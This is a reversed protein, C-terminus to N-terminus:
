LATLGVDAFRPRKEDLVSEGRRCRRGCNPCRNSRPWLGADASEGFARQYLELTEEWAAKLNEADREGRMGFYPFHHLFYGLFRDCDQQYKATDLIHLHWFDDVVSSPVVPTDPNQACLVLFRRYERAVERAFDFSWGMGEEKDMAKIIVPELDMKALASETAAPPTM